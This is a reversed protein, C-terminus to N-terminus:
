NNDAAVWWPVWWGGRPSNNNNESSGNGSPQLWDIVYYIVTKQGGGIKPIEVIKKIFKYGLSIFIEELEIEVCELSTNNKKLELELKEYDPYLFPIMFFEFSYKGYVSSAKSIEESLKVLLNSNKIFASSNKQKDKLSADASGNAFEATPFILSLPFNYKTYLVSQVHSSFNNSM